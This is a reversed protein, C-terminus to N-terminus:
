QGSITGAVKTGYSKVAESWLNRLVERTAVGVNRRTSHEVLMDTQNLSYISSAPPTTRPHLVKIIIIIIIIIILMLMLMLM